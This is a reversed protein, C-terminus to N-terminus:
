RQRKLKSRPSMIRKKAPDGNRNEIAQLASRAQDAVAADRDNLANRLPIVSAASGIDRLAECVVRRVDRDDDEIHKVLEPELEPGWARFAALLPGHLAKDSARALMPELAEPDKHRGLAALAGRAVSRQPDDLAAIMAPTDERRGWIGLAQLANLRTLVDPEGLCKQLKEAIANQATPDVLPFARPGIRLDRSHTGALLESIHTIIM